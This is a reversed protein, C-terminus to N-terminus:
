IKPYLKELLDKFYGVWYKRNTNTKSHCNNCLTILNKPDCNNKNYDIHHVHYEKKTQNKKGLNYFLNEFIKGYYFTEGKRKEAAKKAKQISSETIEDEKFLNDFTM